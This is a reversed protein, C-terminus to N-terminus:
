AQSLRNWFGPRRPFRAQLDFVFAAHDAIPADRPLVPALMALTRLWGAAAEYSSSVGLELVHTILVRYLLTAALPFEQELTEAARALLESDRGNWQGAHDVVHRAALDPKPWEILFRLADVLRPSALVAAFARDMEDFEAFDDLRAIYRRLVDSDFTDLFVAWRQAQAEDRRKLVDLCDAELLRRERNEYDPGVSILIGKVSLLRKDPVPKALWALAEAPQGADLLLRGLRLTDQRALPKRAELRAYAAIDGTALCLSQLLRAAFGGLDGGQLDTELMTRWANAADTALAALAAAFFDGHEGYRDRKREADLRPVLRVQDAPALGALLEVFAKEADGFVNMLRTSDASLRKEVSERLGRLRLLHLAAAAPDATGLESQITRLFGSLETTLDRARPRNISTRAKELLDLRRDILLAIEQPGASGAIATELRAKLPKNSTSEELLIDVLKELGLETLAKRDLRPKTKKAM